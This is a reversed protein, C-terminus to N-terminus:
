SRTGRDKAQLILLAPAAHEHGEEDYARVRLACPGPINLPAFMLVASTNMMSGAQLAEPQPDLAERVEEAMEAPADALPQLPVEAVLQDGLWAKFGISRFANEAPAIAKLMVGLKPLSVPFSDVYLVNQYVGVLTFKGGVEQRIDDCYLATLHRNFPAM